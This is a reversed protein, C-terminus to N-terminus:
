SCTRNILLAKQSLSFISWCLISVLSIICPVSPRQLCDLRLLLCSTDSIGRWCWMKWKPPFKWICALGNEVWSNAKPNKIARRLWRCKWKKTMQKETEKQLLAAYWNLNKAAVLMVEVEKDENVDEDEKKGTDNKKSGACICHQSHFNQHFYNVTISWVISQPQILPHPISQSTELTNSILKFQDNGLCLM